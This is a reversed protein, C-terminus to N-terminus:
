PSTSKERGTIRRDGRGISNRRGVDRFKLSHTTPPHSSVPL